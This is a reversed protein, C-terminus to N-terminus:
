IYCFRTSPIFEKNRLVKRNDQYTIHLQIIKIAMSCNEETKNTAINTKIRHAIIYPKTIAKYLYMARGGM